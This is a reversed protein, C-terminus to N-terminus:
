INLLNDSSMFLFNLLFKIVFSLLSIECDIFYTESIM